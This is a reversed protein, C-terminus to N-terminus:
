GFARLCLKQYTSELKEYVKPSAHSAGVELVSFSMELKARCGHERQICGKNCQGITLAIKGVLDGQNQVM